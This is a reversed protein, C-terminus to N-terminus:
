WPQFFKVFTYHQDAVAAAFNDANLSLVPSQVPVCCDVSYQWVLCVANLQDISGCCACVANLQDISGCCACSM